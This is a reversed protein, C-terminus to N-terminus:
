KEEMEIYKNLYWQAKKIDQLKNEKHECRFIYKFANCLCFSKVSDKGFIDEMVDICEVRATNAYHNPHEVPDDSLQLMNLIKFYVDKDVPAECAMDDQEYRICYNGASDLVCDTINAIFVITGAQTTITENNTIKNKM